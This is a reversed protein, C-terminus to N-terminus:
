HLAAKLNQLSLIERALTNALLAFWEVPEPKRPPPPLNCTCSGIAYRLEGAFGKELTRRCLDRCSGAVVCGDIGYGRIVFGVCLNYSCATVLIRAEAKLARAWLKSPVLITKNM